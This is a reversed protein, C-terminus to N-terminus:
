IIHIFDYLDGSIGQEDHRIDRKDSTYSFGTGTPQDVFCYTQRRIILLCNLCEKHGHGSIQCSSVTQMHPVGLNLESQLNKTCCSLFSGALGSPTEKVIANHLVDDDCTM